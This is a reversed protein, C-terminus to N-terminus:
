WGRCGPPRPSKCRNRGWTQDTRIHAAKAKLVIQWIMMLPLAGAMLRLLLRYHQRHSALHQMMMMMMMMMMRMMTTMTMMVTMMIIMVMMTMMMMMTVMVMMTM